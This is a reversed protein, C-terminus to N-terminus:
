FTKNLSFTGSISSGIHSSSLTNLPQLSIGDTIGALFTITEAVINDGISDTASHCREVYSYMPTFDFYWTQIEDIRYTIESVADNIYDIKEVFAYFWKNGFNTNQFMMYNVDYLTDANHEVRVANRNVRQYTTPACTYKTFSQMTSTQTAQDIWWMTNEYEMDMPINHLLLIRNNPTIYAM